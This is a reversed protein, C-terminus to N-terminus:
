RNSADATASRLFASPVGLASSGTFQKHAALYRDLRADRILSGNAILVPAEISAEAVAAEAPAVSSPPSSPAAAAVAPADIQPSRTMWLVGAVVAFGAAVTSPAIWAWRKSRGANVRRAPVDIAAVPMRQPALVVPEAALRSRLGQLFATDAAADSALDDSRLVDGILQYSHWASRCAADDRWAACVRSVAAEELEGDTLASLQARLNEGSEPGASM